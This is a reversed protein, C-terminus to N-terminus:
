KWTFCLSLPAMLFAFLTVAIVNDMLSLMITGFLILVGAVGFFLTYKGNKKLDIFLGAFPAIGLMVGIFGLLGILIEM